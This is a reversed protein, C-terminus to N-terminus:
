EDDEPMVIGAQGLDYGKLARRCAQEIRDFAERKDAESMRSRRVAEKDREACRVIAARRDEEKRAAVYESPDGEGARSPSTQPDAEQAFRAIDRHCEAIVRAAKAKAVRFDLEERGRSLEARWERDARNDRREDRADRRDAIEELRRNYADRAELRDLEHGDKVLAWGMIARALEQEKRVRASVADIYYGFARECEAKEIEERAQRRYDLGRGFRKPYLPAQRPQQGPFLIEGDLAPELDWSGSQLSTGSKTNHTM